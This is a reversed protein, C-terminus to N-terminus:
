EDGLGTRQTPRARAKLCSASGPEFVECLLPRDEYITCAWRGPVPDLAICHGDKMRMFRTSKDEGPRPPVITSGVMLSRARAPGLNVLDDGYLQVYNEGGFCCRGCALCDYEPAPTALPLSALV